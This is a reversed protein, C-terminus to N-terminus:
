LIMYEDRSLIELPVDTDDVSIRRVEIIELPRQIKSTYSYVHNDVSAAGSLLSDLM